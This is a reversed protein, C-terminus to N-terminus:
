YFREEEGAPPYYDAGFELSGNEYSDEHVFKWPALLGSAHYVKVNISARFSEALFNLRHGDPFPSSLTFFQGIPARATVLIKETFSQISLEFTRTAWDHKVSMFPAIGMAKVAFPPRFTMNYKPNSAQYGLLYAEMGLIEGGAICIGHNNDSDRAQVWHHASPFSNAWNKEQHVKADGSKDQDPLDYNNIQMQFTCSSDLSHVHWHLPLPLYALVGEPTDMDPMWATRSSATTKCKFSFGEDQLHDIEYETTSDNYVRVFGGTWHQEFAINQSNGADKNLMKLDHVFVERQFTKTVDEPVYTFTINHPREKAQPVTSIILALHAGSPLRFKSYYGEFTSGAHPKYHQM